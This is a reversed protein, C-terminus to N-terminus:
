IWILRHKQETLEKRKQIKQEKVENQLTQIQQQDKQKDEQLQTVQKALKQETETPTYPNNNKSKEQPQTTSSTAGNNMNKMTERLRTNDKELTAKSEKERNIDTQLQKNQKEFVLNTAELKQINWKQSQNEKNANVLEGSITDFKDAKQKYTKLNTNNENLSKNDATLKSNKAQLDSVQAELKPIVELQKKLKKVEEDLQKKIAEIEKLRSIEQNKSGWETQLLQIQNKLEAVKTESLKLTEHAKTLSTNLTMIDAANDKVIKDKEKQLNDIISQRKNLEEDKEKITKQYWDIETKFSSIINSSAIIKTNLENNTRQLADTGKQHEIAQTKILTSQAELEWQKQQIQGNLEAEKKDFLKQQELLKAKLNEEALKKAEEADKTAKQIAETYKKNLNAIENDKNTITWNLSKKEEEFNTTLAKKTNTLIETALNKANEADDLVKKQTQEKEIWLDTIKKNLEKIEYELGWIKREAITQEKQVKILEVNKASLLNQAQEQPISLDSALATSLKTPDITIQATNKDWSSFRSKTNIELSNWKIEWTIILKNTFESNEPIWDWYKIETKGNSLIKLANVLTDLEKHWNIECWSKILSLYAQYLMERTYLETNEWLNSRSKIFDDYIKYLTEKPLNLTTNQAWFINLFSKIFNGNTQIKEIPAEKSPSTKVKKEEAFWQSTLSTIMFPISILLMNIRKAFWVKKPSSNNETVWNNQKLNTM